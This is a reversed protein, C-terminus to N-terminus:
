VMVAEGTSVSSSGDASLPADLLKENIPLPSGRPMDEQDQKSARILCYVGVLIVFGGVLNWGPATLDFPNSTSRILVITLVASSLPQLATYGLVSTPEAYKNTWTLLAYAVVSQLLIWWLLPLVASTPVAWAKCSCGQHFADFNDGCDFVTGDDDSSAPCVFHVGAPQTNIVVTAVAM